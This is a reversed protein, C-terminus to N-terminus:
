DHDFHHQSTYQCVLLSAINQIHDEVTIKEEPSSALVTDTTPTWLKAQLLPLHDNEVDEIDSVNDDMDTIMDPALSEALFKRMADASDQGPMPFYGHLSNDEEFVYEGDVYTYVGTEDIQTDVHQRDEFPLAFGRSPDSGDNRQKLTHNIAIWGSNNDQAM